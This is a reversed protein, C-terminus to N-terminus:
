VTKKNVKCDNRWHGAKGCRFCIDDSKDIQKLTSKSRYREQHRWNRFQRHQIQREAMVGEEFALLPSLQPPSLHSMGSSPGNILLALKYSEHQWKEFATWNIANNQKRGLKTTQFWRLQAKVDALIDVSLTGHPSPFFSHQSWLNIQSCVDISYKSAMFTAPSYLSLADLPSKKDKEM